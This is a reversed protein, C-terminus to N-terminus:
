HHLRFYGVWSGRLEMNYNVSEFSVVASKAKVTELTGLGAEELESFAALAGSKYGHYRFRKAYLLATLNLRRGPLKLCHTPTSGSDGDDVEPIGETFLHVYLIRSGYM